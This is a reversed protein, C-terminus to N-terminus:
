SSIVDPAIDLKTTSYNAMGADLLNLINEEGKRKENQSKEYSLKM